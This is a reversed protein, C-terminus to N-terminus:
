IKDIKASVLKKSDATFEFVGHFRVDKILWPLWHRDDAWMQDYPLTEKDFWKLLGEAGKKEIKGMFNSTKFVEATWDLISKGSGFYFELFGASSLEGVRLGTEELVERRAADEASEGPEIKGGPANWFGGGFKSKVKLLLLYKDGRCIYCIVARITKSPNLLNATQDPDSTQVPRTFISSNM